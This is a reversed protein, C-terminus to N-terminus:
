KLYIAARPELFYLRNKLFDFALSRRFASKGHRCLFEQCARFVRAIDACLLFNRAPKM